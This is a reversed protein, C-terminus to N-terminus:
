FHKFPVSHRVNAEMLKTMATGTQQQVVAATQFIHLFPHSVAVNLRSGIDIPM